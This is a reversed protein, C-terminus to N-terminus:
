KELVIARIFRLYKDGVLDLSMEDEVTQRSRLGLTLREQRSMTSMTRIASALQKGSEIDVVIGCGVRKVIRRVDGVDTSVIPLGTAMAEWLSMPSAERISSCVYLDMDRLFAATNSKYGHWVVNALDASDRKLRDGYARQTALVPGVIHYRVQIDRTRRAAEILHEIGKHPNIYGITVIDIPKTRALGGVKKPYFVETDVPASIVINEKEGIRPAIGEYYEKTRESAFIFHDVYRSLRKFVHHVVRPQYMDNMHWVIPIKSKRAALLGKIQWSGNIHIVDPAEAAIMKKIIRVETGFRMLYRALVSPTRSLHQLPIARSLIGSERLSEHYAGATDPAVVITEVEDKLRQAVMRIRGM